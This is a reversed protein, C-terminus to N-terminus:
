EIFNFLTLRNLIKLTQDSFLFESNEIRKFDERSWINAGLLSVVILLLSTEVIPELGLMIKSPSLNSFSFVGFVSVLSIPLPVPPSPTQGNTLGDTTLMKNLENLVITLTLAFYGGCSDGACIIQKPKFGLMEIVDEQGSLIWLYVDLIEQWPVPYPVTLSYDVALIPIGGLRNVIKRLVMEYSKAGMTFFAGGHLYLVLKGEPNLNKLDNLDDSDITKESSGCNNNMEVSGPKRATHHKLVKLAPKTQNRIRELSERIKEESTIYSYRCRITEHNRHRVGPSNQREQEEKDAFYADTEQKTMRDFLLINGKHDLRVRTQKPIQLTKSKVPIGFNVFYNVLNVIIPNESLHWINFPYELNVNM